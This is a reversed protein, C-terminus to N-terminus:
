KDSRQYLWYYESKSGKRSGDWIRKWHTKDLPPRSLKSGQILRLDCRQQPDHRTIINGFYHLMARQGEGLNEGGICDYHAPMSQKLSEVMGRYSKGSDLWPLWLTMALVWVLTVGSAWNLTARRM